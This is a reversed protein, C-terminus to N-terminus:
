GETVKGVGVRGGVYDPRVEGGSLWGPDRWVHNEFDVVGLQGPVIAFVLRAKIEHM